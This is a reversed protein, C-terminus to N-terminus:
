KRGNWFLGDRIGFGGTSSKNIVFAATVTVATTHGSRSGNAAAIAIWGTINFVAHRFRFFFKKAAHDHAGLEDMPLGGGRRSQGSWHAVPQEIEGGTAQAGSSSHHSSAARFPSTYRGGQDADKALGYGQWLITLVVIAKGPVM